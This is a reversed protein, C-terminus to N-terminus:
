VVSLGKGGQMSMRWDKSMNSMVRFYGERHGLLSLCSSKM